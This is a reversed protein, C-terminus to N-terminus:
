LVVTGTNLGEERLDMITVCVKCTDQESLYVHSTSTQNVAKM